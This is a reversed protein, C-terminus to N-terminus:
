VMYDCEGLGRARNWICWVEDLTILGRGHVENSLIPESTRNGRLLNGLLLEHLEKALAQYYIMENKVMDPTVVPSPLGLNILSSKILNAEKTNNSSIGDPSQSRESTELKANLSQALTM